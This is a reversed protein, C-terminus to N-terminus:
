RTAPATLRSGSRGSPCVRPSFLFSVRFVLILVSRCLACIPTPRHGPKRIKQLLTVPLFGAPSLNSSGRFGQDRVLQFLSQGALTSGLSSKSSLPTTELRGGGGSVLRTWPRSSPSRVRFATALSFPTHPAPHMCDNLVNNEQYFKTPSADFRDKWIM